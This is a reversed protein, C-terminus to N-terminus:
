RDFLGPGFTGVRGYFPLDDFSSVGSGLRTKRGGSDTLLKPPADDRRLTPAGHQTTYLGRRRAKDVGSKRTKLWEIEPARLVALVWIIRAKAQTYGM